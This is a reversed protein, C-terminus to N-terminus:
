GIQTSLFCARTTVVLMSLLGDFEGSALSERKSTKSSIGCIGSPAKPVAAIRSQDSKNECKGLPAAPHFLQFNPALREFKANEKFFRITQM